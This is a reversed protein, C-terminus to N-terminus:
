IRNLIRVPLLKSRLARQFIDSRHRASQAHLFFYLGLSYHIVYECQTHINEMGGEEMNTPDSRTADHEEDRTRSRPKVGMWRGDTSSCRSSQRHNCSYVHRHRFVVKSHRISPEYSFRIQNSHTRVTSVHTRVTSVHPCGDAGTVNVTSLATHLEGLFQSPYVM